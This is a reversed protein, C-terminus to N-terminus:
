MWDYLWEIPTGEIASYIYAMAVAGVAVIAITGVIVKTLDSHTLGIPM